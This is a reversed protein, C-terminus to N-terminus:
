SAAAIEPHRERFKEFRQELLAIRKADLMPWYFHWKPRDVRMVVELTKGMLQDILVLTASDGQVRICRYGKDLSNTYFCGAEMGVARNGAAEIEALTVRPIEGDEIRVKLTQLVPTFIRMDLGREKIELFLHTLREALQHTMKQDGSTGGNLLGPTVGRIVLDFYRKLDAESHRRLYPNELYQHEWFQQRTMTQNLRDDRIASEFKIAGAAGPSMEVYPMGNFQAWEKTMKIVLQVAQNNEERGLVIGPVAQRGLSIEVRHTESLVWVGEIEPFQFRGDPTRKRLLEGIRYRLVEPSLVEVLDNVVILVGGARPLGFVERTTRIQRNAKRVFTQVASTVADFIQRYIKDGNPFNKLIKELPWEGYFIPANEDRIIPELLRDIKGQLDSQLKKVECIIARDNLFFDAKESSRQTPTLALKDINESGLRKELFALVRQELLGDPRFSGFADSM